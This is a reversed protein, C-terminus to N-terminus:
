AELYNKTSQIPVCHVVYAAGKLAAAVDSEARLNEPLEFDSLYKPNRRTTNIAAATEASRSLLVM